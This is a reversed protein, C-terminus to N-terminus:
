TERSVGIRLFRQSGWPLAVPDEWMFGLEGMPAEAGTLLDARDTMKKLIPTLEKYSVARSVVVDFREEVTEARQALIQINGLARSSERLFVAKRAHAEILTVRSDPRLVAIPFGPFGAGSGVDAIRIPDAPLHIGVFLSECYHREVVEELSRVSTLNLVRNWRMLIEYHAELIAVQEPTLRVIGSLKAELLKAFM